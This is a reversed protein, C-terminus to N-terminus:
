REFTLRGDLLNIQRMGFVEVLGAWVGKMGVENTTSTTSFHLVFAAVMIITATWLQITSIFNFYNVDTGMTLDFYRNKYACFYGSSAYVHRRGDCAFFYNMMATDDRLYGTVKEEGGM